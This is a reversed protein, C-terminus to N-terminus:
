AGANSLREYNRLGRERNIPNLAQYEGIIVALVQNNTLHIGHRQKYDRQFDKLYDFTPIQFAVQRLVMAVNESHM